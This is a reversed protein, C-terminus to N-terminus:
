PAGADLREFSAIRVYADTSSSIAARIALREGPEPDALEERRMNVKLEGNRAHGALVPDADLIRLTAYAHVKQVDLRKSIDLEHYGVGALETKPMRGFEKKGDPWLILVSNDIITNCNKSCFFFVNKKTSNHM